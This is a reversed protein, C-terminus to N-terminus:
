RFDRTRLPPAVDQEGLALARLKPPWRRDQQGLVHGVMRVAGRRQGLLNFILRPLEQESEFGFPGGAPQDM